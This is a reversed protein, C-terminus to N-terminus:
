IKNPTRPVINPTPYKIVGHYISRKRKSKARKLKNKQRKLLAIKALLDTEASM